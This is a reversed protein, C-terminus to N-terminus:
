LLFVVHADLMCCSTMVMIKDDCKVLVWSVGPTRVVVSRLCFKACCIM